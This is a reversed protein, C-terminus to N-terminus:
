GTFSNMGLKKYIPCFSIISTAALVIGIVGFVFGFFSGFGLSAISVTLLLIGALLRITRENSSINRTFNM